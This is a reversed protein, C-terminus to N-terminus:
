YNCLTYVSRMLPVIGPVFLGIYSYPAGGMFHDWIGWGVDWGDGGETDILERQNMEEVDCTALEIKKLQKM